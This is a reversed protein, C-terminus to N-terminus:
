NVLTIDGRIHGSIAVAHSGAAVITTGYPNRRDSVNINHKLTFRM